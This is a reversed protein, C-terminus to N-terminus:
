AFITCITICPANCLLILFHLLGIALAAILAVAAKLSNIVASSMDFHLTIQFEFLIPHIHDQQSFIFGGLVLRIIHYSSAIGLVIALKKSVPSRLPSMNEILM